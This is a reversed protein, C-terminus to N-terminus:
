IFRHQDEPLDHYYIDGICPTRRKLQYHYNNKNTSDYTILPRYHWDLWPLDPNRHNKFIKQKFFALFFRNTSFEDFTYFIRSLLKSVFNPPRPKPLSVCPSELRCIGHVQKSYCGKDGLGANADANSRCCKCCCNEGQAINMKCCNSAM